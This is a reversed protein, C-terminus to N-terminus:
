LIPKNFVYNLKRDFLNRCVQGYAAIECVLFEDITHVILSKCSIYPYYGNSWHAILLKLQSRQLIPFNLTVPCM